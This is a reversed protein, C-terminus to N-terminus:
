KYETKVFIMQFSEDTAKLEFYDNRNAGYSGPTTFIFKNINNSYSVKSKEYKVIPDKSNYFFENIGSKKIAEKNDNLYTFFLTMLYESYKQYREEKLLYEKNSTSYRVESIQIDFIYMMILLCIVGVLITYVMIFGKKTQM